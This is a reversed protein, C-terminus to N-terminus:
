IYCHVFRSCDARLLVSYSGNTISNYYPNVKYLLCLYDYIVLEGLHPMVRVLGYKLIKLFVNSQRMIMNIM